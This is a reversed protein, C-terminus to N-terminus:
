YKFVYKVKGGDRLWILGGDIKLVTASVKGSAPLDGTWNQMLTFSTEKGESLGTPLGTCLFYTDASVDSIAYTVSTGYRRFATQHKGAVYTYDNGGVRYFGPTTEYTEGKAFTRTTETTTGDAWFVKARIVVSSLVEANGPHVIVRAKGLYEGSANFTPAYVSISWTETDGSDLTVEMNTYYEKKFSSPFVISLTSDSIVAITQDEASEGISFSKDPITLKPEKNCAAVALLVAIAPLILKKM